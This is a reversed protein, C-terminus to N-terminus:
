LPQNLMQLLQETVSTILQSCDATMSLNVENVVNTKFDVDTTSKNTGLPVGVLPQNLMQLLQETVSTILQSCDVMMSLNVENVVNTIFDVDTTSKNTGLPVGVLPQNLMQLLQKLQSYDLMISLYVNTKFDVDTTSKKTGLPVGVLPPNLMQLLQKLQSYDVMMSLYVNTKFDVDTTSKNTGLGRRNGPVGVLTSKANTPAAEAALL